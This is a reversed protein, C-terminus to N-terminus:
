GQGLRLAGLIRLGTLARGRCVAHCPPPYFHGQFLAQSWGLALSQKWPPQQWHGSFVTLGLHRLRSAKSHLQILTMLGLILAILTEEINNVVRGLATKEWHNM